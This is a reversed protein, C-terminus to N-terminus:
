NLAAEPLEAPMYDSIKGMHLNVKGTEDNYFTPKFRAGWVIEDHEYSTRSHVTQSFTEDFAQVLVAFTANSNKLDEPTVNYLPSKEDLPHVVTWSLTLMSVHSRELELTYFRRVSKGDVMENYSFIIEVSVDLLLNPRKNAMRFMLGRGNNVQYPAILLRNSFAIKASPRSFRGYLLGTAMAFVLLGIMSEFAAVFNTAVGSPSIHGYGVTSVTQASFFFASLFHHLADTGEYGNLNNIGIVMYICAFIVNVVIYWSLVMLWFRGWKMTILTNYTNASNLFPTGVRKVNISGNSNIIRQSIAQTGFGLDDEPNVAQKKIAM